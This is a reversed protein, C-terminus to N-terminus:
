DESGKGACDGVVLAGRRWRDSFEGVCIKSMLMLAEMSSHAALAWAARM